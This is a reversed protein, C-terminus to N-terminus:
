LEDSVKMQHEKSFTGEKEDEYDIDVHENVGTYHTLERYISEM